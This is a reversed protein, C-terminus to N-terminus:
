VGEETHLSKADGTYTTERQEPGERWQLNNGKNLDKGGKKHLRTMEKTQCTHRKRQKCVELAKQAPNDGRKQAPEGETPLRGERKRAPGETVGGGGKHAPEGETPVQGEREQTCTKLGRDGGETHPIGRLPYKGRKAPETHLDGERHLDIWM